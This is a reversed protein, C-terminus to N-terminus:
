YSRVQCIPFGRLLWPPLLSPDASRLTRLSTDPFKEAIVLMWARPLSQHGRLLAATDQLLTLPVRAIGVRLLEYQVEVNEPDGYGADYVDIYESEVFVFEYHHCESFDDADAEEELDMAEEDRGECGSNYGYDYGIDPSLDRM